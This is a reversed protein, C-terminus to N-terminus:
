LKTMAIIKVGKCVDCVPPISSSTTTAYQSWAVGEGRCKPCLQYPVVNKNPELSQLYEIAKKRDEQTWQSMRLKSAENFNPRKKTLEVWVTPESEKKFRAVRRYIFYARRSKEEIDIWNSNVDIRCQLVTETEPLDVVYISGDDLPFLSDSSKMYAERIVMYVIEQDEYEIREKIAKEKTSNCHRCRCEGVWDMKLAVGEHILVNTKM